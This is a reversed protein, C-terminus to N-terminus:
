PVFEVNSVKVQDAVKQLSIRMRWERPVDEPAGGNSTHVTASVLVLATDPTMSELGAAGVAGTTTAQVQKVADVFGKSRKTFDDRFEGTSGDIIRQVDTDAHKWDITTLNEAGQRAALLFQGRQVDTRHSQQARIELWSVLGVLAAVAALGFIAGLRLPSASARSQPAPASEPDVEAPTDASDESDVVVNDLTTDSETTIAMYKLTGEEDHPSTSMTTLRASAIDVGAM